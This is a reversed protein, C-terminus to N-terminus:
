LNVRKLSLLLSQQSLPSVQLGAHPFLASRPCLQVPQQPPRSAAVVDKRRTMHRPPLDLHTNDSPGHGRNPWVKETHVSTVRHRQWPGEPGM